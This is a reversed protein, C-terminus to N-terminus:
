WSNHTQKNVKSSPSWEMRKYIGQEGTEFFGLRDYLQLAPNGQQVHLTVKKQLRKAEDLLDNILAYGIGRNRFEPLLTIDVLRIENFFQAVYINGIANGGMLILDFRVDTYNKRYQSQRTEFQFRVFTEQQTKNLNALATILEEQSSAFIQYLLESDNESATCLKVGRYSTPRFDAM